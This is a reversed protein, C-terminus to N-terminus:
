DSTVLSFVFADYLHYGKIKIIASQELFILSLPPCIYYLILM